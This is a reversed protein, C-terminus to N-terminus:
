RCEHGAELVRVELRQQFRKHSIRLNGGGVLARRGGLCQMM